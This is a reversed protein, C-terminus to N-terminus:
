NVKKRNLESQEQASTHIANQKILISKDIIEISEKIRRIELQTEQSEKDLEKRRKGAFLGRASAREISIRHEKDQAETMENEIVSKQEILESLDKQIARLDIRTLEAEVKKLEQGDEGTQLEKKAKVYEIQKKRQEQWKLANTLVLETESRFKEIQESCSNIRQTADKYGQINILLAKAEVIDAITKSNNIRQLAQQYYHEKEAEERRLRIGENYGNLREQLQKNGFRIAKKYLPHNGIEKKSSELEKENRCHIEAMLKGLYGERHGNGCQRSRDRRVS